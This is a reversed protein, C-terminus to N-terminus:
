ADDDGTPGANEDITQEILFFVDFRQLLAPAGHGWFVAEVCRHHATETDWDADEPKSPTGVFARM